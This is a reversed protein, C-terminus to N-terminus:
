LPQIMNAGIYFHWSHESQGYAFPQHAAVQLTFSEPCSGERSNAETKWDTYTGLRHFKQKNYKSSM